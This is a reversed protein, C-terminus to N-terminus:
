KEIDGKAEEIKYETDVFIFYNCFDLYQEVILEYKDMQM